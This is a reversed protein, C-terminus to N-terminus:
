RQFRFFRSLHELIPKLDISFGLVGPKIQIAEYITKLLGEEKKSVDAPVESSGHNRDLWADFDATAITPNSYVPTGLQGKFMPNGFPLVARRLFDPWPNEAWLGSPVQDIGADVRHPPGVPLPGAIVGPMYSRDSVLINASAVLAGQGLAAHVAKGAKETECKCREAAYNIADHLSLRHPQPIVPM